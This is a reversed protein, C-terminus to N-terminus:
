ATAKTLSYIYIYLTISAKRPQRATLNLEKRGQVKAVLNLGNQSFNQQANTIM